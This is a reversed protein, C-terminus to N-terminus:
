DKEEKKTVKKFNEKGENERLILGTHINWASRLCKVTNGKNDVAEKEVMEKWIFRGYKRDDPYSNWDVGERGLREIIQDTSLGVTKKHGLFHHGTQGVSNRICDNQRYLFWAYMENWSPVQWVKCDFQVPEFKDLTEVSPGQLRLWEKNFEGAAICSIVSLLKCLRYQFFPEPQKEEPGFDTLVLSIEDSQVYALKTGSVEKCLKQAAKNMINIFDDDFPLKFKNKILSSFSRGDVMVITYLGTMLKYDTLGRYYLGKEELTKFNKM